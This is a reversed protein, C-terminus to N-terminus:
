RHRIRPLLIGLAFDLENDQYSGAHDQAPKPESVCECMCAPIVTDYRPHEENVFVCQTRGCPVFDGHEQLMKLQLFIQLSVM